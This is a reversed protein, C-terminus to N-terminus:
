AYDSIVQEFVSYTLEYKLAAARVCVELSQPDRYRRYLDSAYTVPMGRFYLMESRDKKESSGVHILWNMTVGTYVDDYAVGRDQGIREWLHRETSIIMAYRDNLPKYLDIIGKRKSRQEFGLKGFADLVVSNFVEKRLPIKDEYMILRTPEHDRWLTAIERNERARSELLIPRYQKMLAEFKDRCKVRLIQKKTHCKLKPHSLVEDFYSELDLEGQKYRDDLQDIINDSETRWEKILNMHTMCYIFYDYSGKGCIEEDCRISAELFHFGREIFTQDVIRYNDNLWKFKQAILKVLDPPLGKEQM